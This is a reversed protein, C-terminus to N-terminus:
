SSRLSLVEKNVCCTRFIKRLGSVKEGQEFMKRFYFEGYKDVTGTNTKIRKDGFFREMIGYVDKNPVNMKVIDSPDFKNALHVAIIGQAYVQIMGRDMLAKRDYKNTQYRGELSICLRNYISANSSVTQLFKATQAEINTGSLKKNVIVYKIDNLAMKDLNTVVSM